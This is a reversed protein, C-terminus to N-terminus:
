ARKAVCFDEVVVVLIPMHNVVVVVVLHFRNQYLFGPLRTVPGVWDKSEDQTDRADVRLSCKLIKASICLLAVQLKPPLKGPLHDVIWVNRYLLIVMLSLLPPTFLLFLDM